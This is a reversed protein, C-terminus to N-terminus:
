ESHDGRATLRAYVVAILWIATLIAAPPGCILGWGYIENGEGSYGLALYLFAAVFGLFYVCAGGVLGAVLSIHVRKVKNSM